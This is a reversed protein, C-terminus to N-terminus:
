AAKEAITKLCGAIRSQPGALCGAISRGPSSLLMAVDAVLERRGKMKALQEITVLAADGEIMADRLGLSTFEKAAGVLIKAADILSESTTVLACPGALSQGLPELVTDKWARRALSNKVVRLRAAKERLRGRLAEQELVTMGSLDVVCASDIGDFRSRLDETILDKVPKSM